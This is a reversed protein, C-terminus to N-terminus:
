LRKPMGMAAPINYKVGEWMIKIGHIAPINMAALETETM